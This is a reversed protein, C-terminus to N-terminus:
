ETSNEIALEEDVIIILKVGNHEGANQKKCCSLLM